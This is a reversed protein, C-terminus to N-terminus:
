SCCSVQCHCCHLMKKLLRCAECFMSWSQVPCAHLGKHVGAWGEGWAAPMTVCCMRGVGLRRWLVHWTGALGALGRMHM